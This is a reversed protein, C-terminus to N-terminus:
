VFLKLLFSLAFGTPAVQWRRNTIGKDGLQIELFSPM